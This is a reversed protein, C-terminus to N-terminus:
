RLAGILETGYKEASAVKKAIWRRTWGKRGGAWEWLLLETDSASLGFGRLVRCAAYFTATDSGQGIEPRPIASLYARARDVVDGSTPCATTPRRPTIGGSSARPFWGPWFVPVRNRPVCWDGAEAYEIGTEGHLSPFTIVYGGDGRIDVHSGHHGIDIDTRNSTHVSPHRYYLHYRFNGRGTRVQWPTDVVRRTVARLAECSACDCDIVVVGSIAGTVVAINMPEGGFWADIEAPTPHRQQYEAWAMIPTKGDGPKGKPVGPRPYPVPIVSFGFERLRRATLLQPSDTM